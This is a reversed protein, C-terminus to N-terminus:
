WASCCPRPLAYGVVAGAIASGIPYGAFNFAASVAFARGLWAMDTRRQRLTFMTVDGPGNLAGTILMALFVLPLTTGPLLLALGLATGGWCAALIYRERGATDVRGFVLAAVFGGVAALGWALGVVAPGEHLVDLVIVPMVIAQVGSGVRLTSMSIALGRLTRSRWVYAVGARADSMLRGSSGTRSRRSPSGSRPLRPSRTCRLRRLRLGVIPGLIQIAAGAVPPGILQSVVWTNSDVANVRTWLHRPVLIPFLTRLGSNSLPHALSSIAVILVLAWPPLSDSAALVAILILSAAALLYDLIVMRTRGYRDLLAGALPSAITGPFISAFTVIGTLVPSQYLTLSFLIVTVSVMSSALRGLAMGFVIRPISPLAFLARYSTPGTEAEAAEVTEATVALRPAPNPTGGQRPGRPRHRRRERRDRAPRGPAGRGAHLGAGPAGRRGRGRDRGRGGRRGRARGTAGAAAAGAATGAAAVKERLELLIRDALKKGVGPIAVLVAQDRALIALQLDAVPRSGVIALAVKPGVGTVSLLLTFFGREEPTRFGYLAQMDERVVHYTHLKLKSSPSASAVVSPAVFVQYGIGGTEVVLSDALVDAVIGEVSVIM